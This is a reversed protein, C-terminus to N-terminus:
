KLYVKSCTQNQKPWVLGYTDLSPLQWHQVWYYMSIDSQLSHPKKPCRKSSFLFFNKGWQYSGLVLSYSKTKGGGWQLYSVCNRCKSRGNFLLTRKCLIQIINMCKDQQDVFNEVSCKTGLRPMSFGQQYQDITLLIYGKALLSKEFFLNNEVSFFRWPNANQIVLM